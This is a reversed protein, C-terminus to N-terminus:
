SGGTNDPNSTEDLLWCKEWLEEKVSGKLHKLAIDLPEHVKCKLPCFCAMCIGLADDYPTVMKLDHRREIAERIKESAPVTFWKTLGGELNNKPCGLCVAARDKALGPNVPARGSQLWDLPSKAGQIVRSVEVVHAALSRPAEARPQSKPLSGPPPLGLRQRTFAELENGVAVSDTSLNHQATIGPNKLRHRIILDVTQGFTSSKPSPPSWQTQPQYFVWGGSPFQSRSFEPQNM